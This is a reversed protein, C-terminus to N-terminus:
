NMAREGEGGDTVSRKGLQVRDKIKLNCESKKRACLITEGKEKSPNDWGRGENAHSRSDKGNKKGSVTIPRGGAREKGRRVQKRRKKDM